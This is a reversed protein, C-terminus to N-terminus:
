RIIEVEGGGTSSDLEEGNPGKGHCRYKYRNRQRDNIHFQVTVALLEGYPVEKRDPGVPSEGAFTVRTGVVGPEVNFTVNSGAPVETRGDKKTHKEDPDPRPKLSRPGQRALTISIDDPM